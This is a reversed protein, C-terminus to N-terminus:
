SDENSDKQKNIRECEDESLVMSEPPRYKEQIERATEFKNDSWGCINKLCFIHLKDNGALAKKVADNVLKYKVYELRSSRMQEWTRAFERKLYTNFSRPSIIQDTAELIMLAQEFSVNALALSVIQKRDLEIRPRGPGKKKAM